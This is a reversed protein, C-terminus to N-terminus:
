VATAQEPARKTGDLLDTHESGEDAVFPRQNGFPGVPDSPHLLGEVVHVDPHMPRHRLHVAGRPHGNEARDAAAFPVRLLYGQQAVGPTARACRLDRFLQGAM